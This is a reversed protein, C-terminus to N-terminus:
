IELVKQQGMIVGAVVDEGHLMTSMAYALDLELAYSWEYIM